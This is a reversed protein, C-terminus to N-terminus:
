QKVVSYPALTVPASGYASPAMTFTVTYNGSTPISINGGSADTLEGNAGGTGWSNTWQADQRIKFAGTSVLPMTVVWNNNGDNIFKMFTDVGWGGAADGTVSYYDAPVVTITNKNLDATMWFQGGAKPAMLNGGSTSIAEGTAYNAGSGADGYSVTWSGKVPLLKFQMTGGAPINIIGTYVGNGTASVLSDLGGGNNNWGEYDGPVWIWSTLNFPTATVSIVNSYVIEAASLSFQVRVDVKAATGAPLNLKLLLNDFDLTSYGQSYVKTGLTVSVPNKWNDGDADIQLTSTVAANFGFKPATTTFTVVKTTDNIMTRSLPVTTTSASLTGSGSTNLTVKADNKTCSALALLAMSSLTLIKTLGTKM